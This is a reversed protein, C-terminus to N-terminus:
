HRPRGRHLTRGGADHRSRSVGRAEHRRRHPLRTARDPVAPRRARLIPFPSPASADPAPVAGATALASACVAWRPNAPMTRLAVHASAARLPDHAVDRVCPMIGVSLPNRAV